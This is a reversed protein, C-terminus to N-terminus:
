VGDVEVFRGAPPHRREVQRTRYSNYFAAAGLAAATAALVTGARSRPRLPSTHPRIEAVLEGTGARTTCSATPRKHAAVHLPLLRVPPPPTRALAWPPRIRGSASSGLLGAGPLMLFPGERAM